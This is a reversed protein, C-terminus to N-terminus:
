KGGAEKVRKLQELAAEPNHAYVEGLLPNEGLLAEDEASLGFGGRMPPPAPQRLVQEIDDLLRQAAAPDVKAIRALVPNAALRQDLDASVAQTNLALLTGVAALCRALSRCFNRRETM